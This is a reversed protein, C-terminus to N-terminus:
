GKQDALEFARATTRDLKEALEKSYPTLDKATKPVWIPEDICATMRSFPHNIQMKDWVNELVTRRSSSVAYPIIPRGTFRALLAIGDSVQRGPIPPIDATIGISQGRKMERVMERMAGFGGTGEDQKFSAGSGDISSCGFSQAAAAVIQGDPHRSTLISLKEAVPVLKMGLMGQGHWCCFIAPMLDASIDHANPPDYVFKSTASSFRLYGGLVHWGLFRRFGESQFFGTKEPQRNSNDM